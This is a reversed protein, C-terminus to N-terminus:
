FNKKDICIETDTPVYEKREKGDLNSTIRVYYIILASLLFLSLLGFIINKYKKISDTIVFYGTCVFLLIIVGLTIVYHMKELISVSGNNGIFISLLGVLFTTVSVFLGMTELNKREMSDVKQQAEKLALIDDYSDAEYELRIIQDLLHRKKEEVEHFKLPRSYSSPYFVKYDDGDEKILSTCESFTLQFAYCQCRKCWDINKIYQEKWLKLYSIKEQIIDKARKNIIDQKVSDITYEIAKQYPHYNNIFCDLQVTKIITMDSKLREFSYEKDKCKLSLFCNHMYVRVSRLAYRNFDYYMKDKKNTYFKEYENLLNQAQQQNKSVKTYYRMLLVMQWMGAWTNGYHSQWNYVDQLTINNQPDIFKLYNAYEKSYSDNVITQDVITKEFNYQYEIRRDKAFYSLKLLLLDIKSITIKLIKEVNYNSVKAKARILSERQLILDHIKDRDYTFRFEFFCIDLIQELIGVWEDQYRIANSYGIVNIVEKSTDKIKFLNSVIDCHHKTLLSAARIAELFSRYRTQLKSKADNHIDEVIENNCWEIIQDIHNVSYRLHDGNLGITAYFILANDAVNNIRQIGNIYSDRSQDETSWDLTQIWNEPFTESLLKILDTLYKYPKLSRKM